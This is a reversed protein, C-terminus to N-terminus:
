KENNLSFNVIDSIYEIHSETLEHNNPIYLGYDDVKDAFNFSVKGFKNYWFPQKGISGCVLPRTEIGHDKLNSVLSKIKPTIIPYALNSIFCDKRSLDLKWYDNNILKDYLLLNKYRKECFSDIKKMQQLGIFAQLDSARLNFGPFYFTYLDKFDDVKYMKKLDQKIDSDLDRSWGHARISKIVNCLDRDDTSIMGGEITSIVHSYYFSFSGAVGFTGTKKGKYSSGVSECSDEILIVNYKRCLFIIDEMSAPVGLVHVLMLADPKEIKCLSEFASPDIGLNHKDAECLLPTMGFQMIPAVTTVWSVAPVVVKNNKIRNMLKLAYLIALNASSGSNVYISYKSGIWEAWQKELDNTLRGKTLHPASRLWEILSHIDKKDITDKVLNIM